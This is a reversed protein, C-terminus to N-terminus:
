VDPRRGSLIERGREKRRETEFLAGLPWNQM